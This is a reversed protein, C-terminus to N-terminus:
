NVEDFLLKEVNKEINERAEDVLADFNFNLSYNDSIIVFGSKIADDAEVNMSPMVKKAENLFKGPVRLLQADKFNEGDLASKLFKGYEGENIDALRQKALDFAKAIVAQKAMLVEDRVKLKASTVTREKIIAAERMSAEIKKQSEQTQKEMNSALKEAYEKELKTLEADSEGKADSVIKSIMNDLNAM